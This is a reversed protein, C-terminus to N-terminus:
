RQPHIVVDEDQLLDEKTNHTVKLNKIKASSDCSM